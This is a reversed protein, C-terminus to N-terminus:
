AESYVIKAYEPLYLSPSWKRVFLFPSDRIAQLTKHSAKQIVAPNPACEPYCSIQSNPRDEVILRAMALFSSDDGRWFAFTRCRGQQVLSWAGTVHLSGGGFGALTRVGNGPEIAGFVTALFAWEDACVNASAPRHFHQPSLYRQKGEWSGGKLWIHWVGRADVPSWQGVFLEAHKRNLTVWQHHKVLRVDHGDVTAYGWQDSPFVCFDSDDDALLTDYIHSFPKAPLTSDSVFAFKEPKTALMGPTSSNAKLAETLLVTMATVLDHCYWTPVTQVQVFKPNMFIGSNRCADPEKCHVHVTYANPPANAFFANWLDLHQIGDTVLFLFHV